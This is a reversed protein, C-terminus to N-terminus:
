AEGVHLPNSRELVLLHQVDAASASNERLRHCTGARVDESDIKRLRNEVYGFQVGEVCFDVDGVAGGRGLVQGELPRGGEVEDRAHFHQLM